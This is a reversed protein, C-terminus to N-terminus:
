KIRIRLELGKAKHEAIRQIALEHKKAATDADITVENYDEEPYPIARKQNKRHFEVDYWLWILGHLKDFTAKDLVGYDMGNYSFPIGQKFCSTLEDHIKNFQPDIERRLEEHKIGAFNRNM